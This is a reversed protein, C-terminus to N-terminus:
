GRCGIDNWAVEDGQGLHALDDRLAHDFRAAGASVDVAHEFHVYSADDVQSVLELVAELLAVARPKGEHRKEHASGDDGQLLIRDDVAREFAVADAVVLMDIGADGDREIPPEDDGNELVGVLEVKKSELATDGVVALAGTRLLEHRRVDFTGGEGNGVGALKACDEAQGNDVLRVHGDHADAADGFLGHHDSVLVACIGDGDTGDNVKCQAIVMANDVASQGVLEHQDYFLSEFVPSFFDALLRSRFRTM